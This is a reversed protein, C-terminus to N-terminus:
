KALTHFSLLQATSQILEKAVMKPSGEYSLKYFVQRCPLLGQNSEQNPFIRQLLSLSGVGANEPKGQSEAPLSDAQLTPFRPEIGPNPLDGSSLSGM